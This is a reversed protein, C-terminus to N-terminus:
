NYVNASIFNQKNRWDKEVKVFLNLMVKKELMKEIEIRSSTGIRKLCEGGKGIIIAKHSDKECIIDVSIKVINKEEKFSVVECFTGHPIEQNTFNLVKERVIEACFFKVPKDTIEDSSFIFEREPLHKIIQQKLVNVNEGSKSSIPVIELPSLENLSVLNKALVDKQALDIKSVAIIVKEFKEIINKINNIEEDLFLKSGDILYVVVDAGESASRFSKNMFKDLVNKARHIGPTDIFVIQNEGETLVGLVNVRTTQVKHSVINLKFGLLKNILTSKGANTRGIVAVYGSKM